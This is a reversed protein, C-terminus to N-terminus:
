KTGKVDGMELGFFLFKHFLPLQAGSETVTWDSWSAELGDIPLISTWMKFSKPKYNNDLLWLYSDGPTSGGSNYTVLLAQEGNELTILRRETGPDFAKYPAALWFSDNNFYDKAKKIIEESEKGTLKTNNILAESKSFNNLDLDVKYKKWFVECKNESKHWKFHHRKKFTWELYDTSEYAEHNLASLMKEALVDAQEGQLGQPLDENYKFYLFGFLLFTPLTFFIIIGTIIKLTKKLKM